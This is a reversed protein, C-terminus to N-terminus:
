RTAGTTRRIEAAQFEQLIVGDGDVRSGVVDAQETQRSGLGSGALIEPVGNVAPESFRRVRERDDRAMGGVVDQGEEIQRHVQAKGAM